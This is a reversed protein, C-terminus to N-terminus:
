TDYTLMIIGLTISAYTRRLSILRLNSHQYSAADSDFSGFYEQRAFHDTHFGIIGAAGPLRFTQHQLFVEKAALHLATQLGVAKYHAFHAAKVTGQNRAVLRAGCGPCVCECALGNAVAGIHVLQEGQLCYPLKLTATM